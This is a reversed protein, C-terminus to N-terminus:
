AFAIRQNRVQVTHGTPPTPVADNITVNGSSSGTVSYTKTTKTGNTLDAFDVAVTYAQGDILGTMSLTFTVATFMSVFGTTRPQNQAVTGNGNITVAHALAEVDTYENSLTSSYSSDWVVGAVFWQTGWGLLDLGISNLPPLPDFLAVVTQDNQSGGSDLCVGQTSSIVNFDSVPNDGNPRAKIGWLFSRDFLAASGTAIAQNEVFNYPTGPPTCKQHGTPGIWGIFGAQQPNNLFPPNLPTAFTFISILGDSQSCMESINKTYRSTYNGNFDITSSGSWEIRAGGVQYASGPNGPQNGNMWLQQESSGDWTLTKYLKPPKSTFGPYEPFGRVTAIRTVSAARMSLKPPFFSQNSAECATDIVFFTIPQTGSGGMPTGTILGTLSMSLGDPLVGSTIEWNYHGSGGAAVMQFSYPTGTTFPPITTTSVTLVTISFPRQAYSHDTNSTVRVTFGYTGETTLTGSVLGSNAALSLGPPLSGSIISWSFPGLGGTEIISGTYPNGKCPCGNLGSLCVKRFVAQQCAFAQAEQDAAAQDPAAFTGAVVTYVFVTGNSCAVSCQKPRNFYLQVLPPPPDCPPNPCPTNQNCLNLYVACQNLIDQIVTIKDDATANPPYTGVLLNGCCMIRFNTADGCDFGPPCNTVFPFISGELTYLNTDEILECDIPLCAPCPAAM